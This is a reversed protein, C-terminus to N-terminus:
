MSKNSGGCRVDYDIVHPDDGASTVVLKPGKAHRYNFVCYGYGTGSCIEVETVGSRRLREDTGGNLPETPRVPRWGYALLRTRARRIDQAFINPVLAAGECVRDEKATHEVHIGNKRLVVDAIPAGPLGWRLRIRGQDIQEASGISDSAVIDNPDSNTRSPEYAIARLRSGEFIALNGDRHGCTGSTAADLAGILTVADYNGLKTESTVIWGRKAALRGGLTKPAIDFRPQLDSCYEDIRAGDPNPPLKSIAVIRVQRLTSDVKLDPPVAAASASQSVVLAGFVLM